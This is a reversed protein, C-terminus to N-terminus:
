ENEKRMDAGCNSCFNMGNEEQTGDWSWLVGCNSCEYTTWTIQNWEGYVNERVDASPMVKIRDIVKRAGRLESSFTDKASIRITNEIDVLLQGRNIYDAM